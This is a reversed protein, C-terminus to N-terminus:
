KFIQNMIETIEESLMKQNKVYDKCAKIYNVQDAWDSIKPPFWSGKISNAQASVVILNNGTSNEKWIATPILHDV